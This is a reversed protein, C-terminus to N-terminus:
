NRDMGAGFLATEMFKFRKWFPGSHSYYKKPCKDLFFRRFYRIKEQIGAIGKEKPAQSLSIKPFVKAPRLM